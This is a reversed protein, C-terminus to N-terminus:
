LCWSRRVSSGVSAHFYFYFWNEFVSRCWTRNQTIWKHPKPCPQCACPGMALLMVIFVVFNFRNDYPMLIIGCLNFYVTCNSHTCSLLHSSIFFSTYVSVTNMTPITLPSLSERFSRLFPNRSSVVKQHMCAININTTCALWCFGRCNIGEFYSIGAIRYNMWRTPNLHPCTNLYTPWPIWRRGM